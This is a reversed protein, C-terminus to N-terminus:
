NYACYTRACGRSNYTELNKLFCDVILDTINSARDIRGMHILSLSQIHIPGHLSRFLFSWNMAVKLLVPETGASERYLATRIHRWFNM